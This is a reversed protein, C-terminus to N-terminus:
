TDLSRWLYWSAVSRFPIWRQSVAHYDDSTPTTPLRYRLAIANRLGLDDAAFIDLRGLGFLLFMQATWRGIGAVQTVTAIIAEDDSTAALSRFNLTGDLTLDTLHRLYRRKQISIGVAQLQRDSLASIQRASIYRGPLLRQLRIHITRAAKVSIQQSLIARVLLAYRAGQPRLQCDGVEQILQEM